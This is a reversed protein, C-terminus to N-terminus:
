QDCAGVSIVATLMQNMFRTPSAPTEATSSAVCSFTVRAHHSLIAKWWHDRSCSCVACWTATVLWRCRRKNMM